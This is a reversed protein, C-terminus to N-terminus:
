NALETTARAHTDFLQILAEEQDKTFQGVVPQVVLSVVVAFVSEVGQTVGVLVLYDVGAVPYQENSGSSMMPLAKSRVALTKPQRVCLSFSVKRAM